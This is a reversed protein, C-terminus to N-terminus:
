EFEAAIRVATQEMNTLYVSSKNLDYGTLNVARILYRYPTEEECTDVDIINICCNDQEISVGGQWQMGLIHNFIM